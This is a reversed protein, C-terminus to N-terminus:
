RHQEALQWGIVDHGLRRIGFNECSQRAASCRRCMSSRTRTLVEHAAAVRDSIWPAPTVRSRSVCTLARTQLCLLPNTVGLFFLRLSFHADSSLAYRPHDDRRVGQPHSCGREDTGDEGSGAVGVDTLWQPLTSSAPITPIIEVCRRPSSLARPRDPRSYWERFPTFAGM